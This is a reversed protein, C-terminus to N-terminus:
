KSIHKQLLNLIEKIVQQFQEGTYQDNLWDNISINAKNFVMDRINTINISYNRILNKFSMNASKIQKLLKNVLSKRDIDPYKLRMETYWISWLACFGGPDGIKTTKSEYVDLYQFGIKPLFHHPNVYKINENIENFKFTLINDLLKSDYNFKYPSSSGYPEFREIEYTKKDFILYNAHSGEILEIGLPVIIFRVNQNSICKNFNTVFNESFFLKKYIWVIEFNLFECKTNTKFGLNSYYNCLDTNNIFNSTITSCVCDYKNLLYILGILIDLTIGTFTCMEVKNLSDVFICQKNKKQPYSTNSCSSNKNKNKYINTLKENIIKYCIDTNTIKDINTIYKGIIRKENQDLNNLFLEKNCLNEWDEKFVFNNNRLIFLYSNTIINMFQDLDEKNIYDIPTKDDNNKIFINLKKTELIDKYTKWLDNKCIYHLSSNKTNDQYNLNSQKILERLIENEHINEKELLIHIPIKENINYINVNPKFKIKNSNILEYAIEYNEEILAYHLVTNGMFDQINPDAGHYLLYKSINNTNLTISYIIATIENNYDQANIDINNSILLKVIDFQQFNCAIHLATEGILTKANINVDKNIIKNCISLNKTYVALHLSNNGDNDIINTNSNSKLLIDIANINKFFIAYHLPINNFSDKLDIISIGIIHKNHEILLEVIEDYGYKIPLYLLSRGEQDNIDTRCEKELILKIIEINNKIIAYFILYNGNEDKYNIDLQENEMMIKKFQDYKNDKLLQFLNITNDM